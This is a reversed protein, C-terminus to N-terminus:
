SHYAMRWTIRFIECDDPLQEIKSFHLTKSNLNFPVMYLQDDVLAPLDIIEQGLNDIDDASEALSEGIEPKMIPLTTLPENRETGETPIVVLFVYHTGSGILLYLLILLASVELDTLRLPTTIRRAVFVMICHCSPPQPCSYNIM